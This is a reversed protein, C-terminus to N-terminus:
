IYYFFFSTKDLMVGVKVSLYLQENYKKLFFHTFRSNCSRLKNLESNFLDNIKLFLRVQYSGRTAEREFRKQFSKFINLSYFVIKYYVHFLLQLKLNAHQLFLILRSMLFIIVILSLYLM